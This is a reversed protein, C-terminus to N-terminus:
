REWFFLYSILLTSLGTGIYEKPTNAGFLWILLWCIALSGLVQLLNKKQKSNM